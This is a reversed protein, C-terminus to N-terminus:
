VIRERVYGDLQERSLVELAPRCRPPTPGLLRILASRFRRRWQQWDARSRGRFHLAPASRLLQAVGSSPTLFRRVAMGVLNAVATAPGPREFPTGGPQGRAQSPPGRRSGTRRRCLTLGM